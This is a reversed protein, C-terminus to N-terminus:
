VGLRFSAGWRSRVLARLDDYRPDTDFGVRDVLKAAARKAEALVRTFRPSTPFRQVAHGAQMTGLLDGPGRHQLDAEAIAFGDTTRALISLRGDRARGDCFLYCRGARTSRGVRGRLQHLQALGFRDANEIVMV